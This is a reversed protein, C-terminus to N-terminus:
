AEPLRALLQQAEDRRDGDLAIVRRLESRASAIDGRRIRAKALFFHADELYPSEGAAIVRQLLTVGEDTGDIQLVSVALYFQAGLLSPDLEIARRLGAAAGSYNGAAYLEMATRFAAQASSMSARLRLPEYRPPQIQALASLDPAPTPNQPAQLTVDRGPSAGGPPVVPAASDPGRTVRVALVIVAAAALGAAAVRWAVATRRLSTPSSTRQALVPAAERTLQARADELVRLREQCYTCDFYHAEFDDQDASPLRGSLYQEVVEDREIQECTM